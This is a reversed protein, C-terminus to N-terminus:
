LLVNHWDLNIFNSIFLKSFMKLVILYLLKSGIVYALKSGILFLLNNIFFTINLSKYSYNQMTLLIVIM